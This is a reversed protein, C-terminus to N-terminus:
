ASQRAKVGSIEQWNAVVFDLMADWGELEQRFRGGPMLEDAARPEIVRRLMGLTNAQVQTYDEPEWQPISDRLNKREHERRRHRAGTAKAPESGGQQTLLTRFLGTPTKVGGDSLREALRELATMGTEADAIGLEVLSRACQAATDRDLKALKGLRVWDSEGMFGSGAAAANELQQDASLAPPEQAAAAPKDERRKEERPASKTVSADREKRSKQAIPANGRRRAARKAAQARQKATEGNHEGFDPFTITDGDVALWGVQIMADAFGDLEAIDDIDQESGTFVGETTHEDAWAWVRHLRGVVSFRDSHTLRALRRVKHSDHLNTMMKIWTGAM